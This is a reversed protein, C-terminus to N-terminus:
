TRDGGVFVAPGRDGNIVDVPNAYTQPLLLVFENSGTHGLFDCDALTVRLHRAAQVIIEDAAKHGLTSAIEGMGALRISLVAVSRDEARSDEIM